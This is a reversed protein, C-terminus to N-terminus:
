PFMSLGDSHEYAFTNSHYAVMRKEDKKERRIESHMRQISDPLYM